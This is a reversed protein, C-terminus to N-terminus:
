LKAVNISQPASEGCSGAEGPRDDAQVSTSAPPRLPERLNSSPLSKPPKTRPTGHRIRISPEPDTFRNPPAHNLEVLEVTYMERAYRRRRTGVM